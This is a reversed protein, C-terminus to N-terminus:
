NGPTVVLKGVFDKRLFRAQAEPLDKLPYSAALLPRVQATEIWSVLRAFDERTGVTSGILTLHKLYMTRLDLEVQPGAIAGASVYRGCTALVQLLAPFGAGAVLDAVVDIRGARGGLADAGLRAFDERIVVKAAGLEAVLEAKDAGAVAVVEAGRLRALQVLASGVGGSAGTVLVTEGDAVVARALMHEATLWAIPFTALEADSLMSNVAVANEAPVTCYEAFGGDRESGILSADYLGESAADDSYLVPNVLVREGIRAPDVGRGVADIRGAIDGGQIRPFELPVRRWGATAMPDSETGYVGERTWIDTNNLGAAAVAIRVEGTGPEPRAVDDRYVLREPGGHGVLLYARM